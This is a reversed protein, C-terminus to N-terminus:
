GSFEPNRGVIILHNHVKVVGSIKTVEDEAVKKELFSSVQGYLTVEGNVVTVLVVSKNVTGDHSLLTEISAKIFEDSQNSNIYPKRM